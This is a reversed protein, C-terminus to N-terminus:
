KGEGNQNGAARGSLRDATERWLKRMEKLRENREKVMNKHYKRRENAEAKLRAKYDEESEWNISGYLDRVFRSSRKITRSDSTGQLNEVAIEKSGGGGYCRYWRFLGKSELIRWLDTRLLYRFLDSNRAIPKLQKGLETCGEILRKKTEKVSFVSRFALYLHGDYAADNLRLTYVEDYACSKSCKNNHKSAM